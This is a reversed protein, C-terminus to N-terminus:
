KLLHLHDFFTKRYAHGIAVVEDEIKLKYEKIQISEIKDVNVLYKKHCRLFHPLLTTELTRLQVNTPYNRNGVRAYTLKNDAFFYSIQDVEMRKYTDGIKFFIQSSRDIISPSQAPQPTKAPQPKIRAEKFALKQQLIVNEQQLLALELTQLVKVRSLERNMFSAPQLKKLQSPNYNKLHSTIFVLPCEIGQERFQQGITIAKDQGAKLEADMFIIDPKLEPLISLASPLDTALAITAIGLDKLLITLLQSFSEDEDLILLKLAAFDSRMTFRM